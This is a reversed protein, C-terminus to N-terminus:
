AAEALLALAGHGAMADTREYSARWASHTELLVDRWDDREREASNDLATAM